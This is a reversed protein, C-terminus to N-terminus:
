RARQSQTAAIARRARDAAALIRSVRAGLDVDGARVANETERCLNALEFCGVSRAASALAHTERTAAPIGGMTALSAMRRDLEAAFLAVIEDTTDPGHEGDLEAITAEDLVPAAEPEPGRVTM